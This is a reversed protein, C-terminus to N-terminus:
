FVFGQMTKLSVYFFHLRRQGRLSGKNTHSCLRAHKRKYLQPEKSRFM